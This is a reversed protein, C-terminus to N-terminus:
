LGILSKLNHRPQASIHEESTEVRESLGGFTPHAHRLPLYYGPVVLRGLKTRKAMEVFNLKSWTNNLKKTDCKKCDTIMFEERVEDARQRALKVEDVPLINGFNDIIRSVLKDEQVLHYHIFADV